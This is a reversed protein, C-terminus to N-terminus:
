EKVFKIVDVQNGYSNIELTYVGAPLTTIDLTNNRIGSAQELSMVQKGLVDYIYITAQDLAQIYDLNITESAPNPYLSAVQGSLQNSSSVSVVKSYTTAGNKDTQKVRYYAVEASRFPNEDIMRYNNVTNSNRGAAIFGAFEWQDKEYSREVTFGANNTESATSWTVVVDKGEPEAAVGLWKVPLQTPDGIILQFRNGKSSANGTISFAYSSTSRLDTFTNTFLDRLYVTRNAPITNLNDFELQYTGSSAFASMVFTDATQVVPVSNYQLTTNNDIYFGLNIVSNTLKLADESVQYGKTASPNFSLFVVDSNISDRVMRATVPGSATKFYSVPSTATKCNETFTLSPTAGIAQIFFAQGSAIPESGDNAVYSGTSADMTYYFPAINTKTVENWDIQSPYPNGVMNWGDDAATGTNSYTIAPSINGQNVPGYFDITVANQPVYPAVYWAPTPLTRDGRVFVLAGKGPALSNNINTVAKWGRTAQSEEYTYVTVQNSVSYDFGNAAGGNGTVFIDDKLDTYTFASVNPSIMRSRRVVSPIYRQSTVNGTISATAPISAIRATGSANSVLVLNNNTALIANGELTLSNTVSTNISLSKTGANTFEVSGFVPCSITQDTGNFKVVTNANYSPYAGTVNLNGSINYTGAAFKKNAAGSLILNAYDSRATINQTGTTSSYTISSSSGVVVVASGFTGSLGGSNTTTFTGKIYVTDCTITYGAANLTAGEQVVVVKPTGSFTINSTVNYNNPNVVIWKSANILGGGSNGSAASGVNTPFNGNQTTGNNNITADGTFNIHQPTNITAGANLTLNGTVTMSTGNPVNLTQTGSVEVNNFVIGGVVNNAEINVWYAPIFTVTSTGANFTGGVAKEMITGSSINCNNRLSNDIVLNYSGANVTGGNEIKLTSITYPGNINWTCGNQVTIGGLRLTGLNIISEFTPTLYMCVSGANFTAGAAVVINKKVYLNIQSMTVTGSSIYINSPVNSGTGSPWLYYNGNASFNQALELIADSGYTPHSTIYAGNILKLTGTITVASGLNAQTLRNLTLNNLNLTGSLSASNGSPATVNVQLPANFTGSNNIASTNNSLSVSLTGSNGNFTGANNLVNWSQNVAFTINLESAGDAALTITGQNNVAYKYSWNQVSSLNVNLTRGSNITLTKGSNVQLTNCTTTATLTVNGDIFVNDNAGPVVGGIWTGTNNWNGGASQSVITGASANLVVLFLGAIIAQLYKM